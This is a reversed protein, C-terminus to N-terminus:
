RDPGCFFGDSAALKKDIVWGPANHAAQHRLVKQWLDIVQERHPLNRFEVIELQDSMMNGARLKRNIYNEVIAM